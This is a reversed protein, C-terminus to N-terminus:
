KAHKFLRGSRKEADGESLPAHFCLGDIAPTARFCRATMLSLGGM